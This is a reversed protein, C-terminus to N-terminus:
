LQRNDIKAHSQVYFDKLILVLVNLRVEFDKWVM